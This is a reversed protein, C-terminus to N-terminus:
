KVRKMHCINMHAVGKKGGSKDTFLEICAYDSNGQEIHELAKLIQALAAQKDEPIYSDSVKEVHTSAAGFYADKDSVIRAMSLPRIVESTGFRM